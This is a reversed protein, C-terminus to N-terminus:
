VTYQIQIGSFETNKIGKLQKKGGLAACRVASWRELLRRACDRMDEPTVSLIREIKRERCADSIGYLLRIFSTFGKDAPSRPQIERSYCGIITRELSIPDILEQAAERLAEQFLILSAFPDPDRYSAMVFIDELNDPYAFAGYAGGGTRIKEWLAGSALAHGLVTEVPQDPTGYVAGPLVAAAFGVQLASSILEIAPTGASIIKHKTCAAALKYLSEAQSFTPMLPAVPASFAGLHEALANRAAPLSAADGTLNVIMGSQRLSGRIKELREALTAAFSRDKIRDALSRVFTLQSFGNWLEDVAKSRGSFASARSIAYQNGAPAISSDLDNRYELLLDGLRKTDSFDAHDLFRFALAFAESNLESLMKVRMMLWDRGVLGPGLPSSAASGPVASSTFLMTGLAGTVRASLASVEHWSLSDLAMSTLVSSFFPLYLYDEAELVDVPIALDAYVIGNTPQQHTLLPVSGISGIDTAIHDALAPLDARSLHPIRTLIEPDDEEQQLATLETQSRLYVARSGEDLGAEFLRCRAELKDELHKSFDPDPYVTVRTRHQNVVFFRKLLGTLYSPDASLRRKVVDFAATYGLAAEPLQGHIWGRLSRRMWVLSFPGGSRRVERNSFDISRVATELEEASIGNESLTTITDLILKELAASKERQVGRLGVTFCLHKIETELGSSPALDEGLGSELMLRSLTSGDHGLLVEAALNAEMLAVPDAAEDLLWSVLVTTKGPEANEDCPAPAELIRPESFPKVPLIFPPKESATFHRLFRDQLLELQRETAINGCLFVRCNVPHYYRRHFALFQEYSLAPIDAPDGGSDHDYPTGELLSRLSWDGAINDFSSYNGRMENFVVGQVSVSGDEAIEFRHGEQRFVWEDLNPFFVADGYVSMLNFYDAEVMSSAPYVTKDPFTMANLFTKVSQKALILFPDKLPYNKSGCLVSHELIHAVGTSDEPPTMFSYSFLNEEDDNLVHFVELATVEHRAHIGRAKQEDLEVIRLIEFGHMKQGVTM